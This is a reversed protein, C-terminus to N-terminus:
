FRMDPMRVSGQEPLEVASQGMVTNRGYLVYVTFKGQGPAELAFTGDEAVACTAVPYDMLGLGEQLLVARLGVAAAGGRPVARGVVRHVSERALLVECVGPELAVEPLDVTVQDTLDVAVSYPGPPLSHVEFTGSYDTKLQYVPLSLGGYRLSVRADAAPTVGDVDTITCVLTSSLPPATLALDAVDVGDVITAEAAASRPLRGWVVNLVWEGPALPGIRFSGDTAVPARPSDGDWYPLGARKRQAIVELVGSAPDDPPVDVRGAVFAGRYLTASVEDAPVVGPQELRWAGDPFAIQVETEAFGPAWATLSEGGWNQSRPLVFRGQGDTLARRQPWPTDWGPLSVVASPVPTGDARVVVGAAADTDQPGGRTPDAPGERGPGPVANSAALEVESSGGPSARVSTGAGAVQVTWSGAEAGPVVFHGQADTVVAWHSDPIRGAGWAPQVSVIEGAAPGGGPGTVTGTVEALQESAIAVDLEAGPRVMVPDTYGYFTTTDARGEVNSRCLFRYQGPPLGNITCTDDPGLASLASLIPRYEVGGRYREVVPVVWGPGALPEGNAQVVRVHVNATGGEAPPAVVIEVPSPQGDARVVAGTYSIDDAGARSVRTAASESSSPPTDDAGARSVGLCYWGPLNLSLEFTGDARKQSPGYSLTQTLEAMPSIEAAEASVPSGDPAVLRGTLRAADASAIRVAGLDVSAGPEVPVPYGRDRTGRTDHVVTLAYRGPAVEPFSFAGDDASRAVPVLDEVPLASFPSRASLKGTQPDVFLSQGASMGSRPAQNCDVLVVVAGPIPAGTVTEVLQGRVSADARPLRIALPPRHDGSGAHFPVCAAPHGGVSVTAVHYDAKVRALTFDGAPTTTAPGVAERLGMPALADLWVTADAVPRGDTDTVTGRLESLAGPAAGGPGQAAVAVEAPAAVEPTNLRPAGVLVDAEIRDRPGVLLRTGGGPDSSIDYTGPALNTITLRGQEDSVRERQSTFASLEGSYSVQVRQNAVPEGNPRRTTLDITGGPQLQIRWGAADADSLEREGLVAWGQDCVAFVEFRGGPLQRVSFAGDPGTHVRSPLGGYGETAMLYLELDADPVPQGAPDVVLGQAKPMAPVTLVLEEAPDQAITVNGLVTPERADLGCFVSWDGTVDGFLWFLGEDDSIAVRLDDPRQQLQRLDEATMLPRVLGVMIGPAPDGTGAEVLRGKRGATAPLIIDLRPTEGGVVTIEVPEALPVRRRGCFVSVRWTGPSISPVMLDGNPSQVGFFPPGAGPTGTMMGMADVEQVEPAAPDEFLVFAMPIPTKGDPALIRGTVATTQQSHTVGTLGVLIVAMAILPLRHSRSSRM